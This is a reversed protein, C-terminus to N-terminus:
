AKSGAPEKDPSPAFQAWFLPSDELGASSRHTATKEDVIHVPIKGRGLAKGM